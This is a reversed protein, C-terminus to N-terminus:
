LCYESEVMQVKKQSSFSCYNFISDRKKKKYIMSVTITQYLTGTVLCNNSVICTSVASAFCLLKIILIVKKSKTSHLKYSYCTPKKGRHFALLSNFKVFRQGHWM